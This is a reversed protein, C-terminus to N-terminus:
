LDYPSVGFTTCMVAYFALVDCRHVEFFHPNHKRLHFALVPVPVPHLLHVCLAAATTAHICVRSLSCSFMPLQDHFHNAIRQMVFCRAADDWAVEFELALGSLVVVNPSSHVVAMLERSAGEELLGLRDRKAGGCTSAGLARYAAQIDATM